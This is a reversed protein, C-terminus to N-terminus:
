MMTSLSVVMRRDLSPSCIPATLSVSMSAKDRERTTKRPRAQVVVRHSVAKASTGVERSLRGKVEVFSVPGVTVPVGAQARHDAHSLEKVLGSEASVATNTRAYM